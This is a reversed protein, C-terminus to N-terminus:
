RRRGGVLILAPGGGQVDFAIPTGDNSTVRGAQNANGMPSGEVETQGKRTTDYRRTTLTECVVIVTGSSM